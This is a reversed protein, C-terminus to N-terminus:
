IQDSADIDKNLITTNDVFRSFQGSIKKLSDIIRALAFFFIGSTLGAFLWTIAPINAVGLRFFLVIGAVIELWGFVMLLVAITDHEKEEEKAKDNIPAAVPTVETEEIEPIEEGEAILQWEQATHAKGGHKIWTKDMKRTTDYLRIKESYESKTAEYSQNLVTGCAKNNCTYELLKLLFEKNPGKLPGGCIPCKFSAFKM